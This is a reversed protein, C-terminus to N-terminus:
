EKFEWHIVVVGIQSNHDMVPSAIIMLGEETKSQVSNASLIFDDEMTKGEEKKNSSFEIKKTKSDVYVVKKIDLDGRLLALMYQEANEKNGRTLESKIAWAFVRALEEGTSNRLKEIKSEYNETLEKKVNNAKAFGWIVSVALAALLIFVFPHRRIISKKKSKSDPKSTEEKKAM